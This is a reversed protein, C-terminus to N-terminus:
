RKGAPTPRRVAEAAEHPTRGNGSPEHKDPLLEQRQLLHMLGRMYRAARPLATAADEAGAYDLLVFGRYGRLHLGRLQEPWYLAADAGDDSVSRFPTRALVASAIALDIGAPTQMSAPEVCCRLWPSGVDNVAQALVPGSGVLTGQRGNELALTVGREGGYDACARLSWMVDSWLRRKDPQREGFVRRFLGVIRGDPAAAHRDRVAGIDLRLVPAGIYAAIDCAQKVREIERPRGADDYLDAEVGISAITLHLDTAQRKLSRLERADVAPLDAVAFEVGDADLERACIRLWDGLSLGRRFSASYAASTCGLKM